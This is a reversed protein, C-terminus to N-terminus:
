KIKNSNEFFINWLDFQVENDERSVNPFKVSKAWYLTLKYIM